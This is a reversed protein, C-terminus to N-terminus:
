SAHLRASSSSATWRFTNGSSNGFRSPRAGVSYPAIAAAIRSGDPLRSDLFPNSEDLEEGGQRAIRQLAFMLKKSDLVDRGACHM